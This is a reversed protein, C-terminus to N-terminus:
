RGPHWIHQSHQRLLREAGPRGPDKVIGIFSLDGVCFWRQPDLDPQIPMIKASGSGSRSRFEPALQDMNTDMDVLHLAIYNKGSLKL